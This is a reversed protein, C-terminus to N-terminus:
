VKERSEDDEESRHTTPITTASLIHRMRKRGTEGGERNGEHERRRRKGESGKDSGDDGAFFAFHVAFVSRTRFCKVRLWRTVRRKRFGTLTMDGEGFLSHIGTSQQPRPRRRMQGQYAYNFITQRSVGRRGWSGRSACIAVRPSSVPM